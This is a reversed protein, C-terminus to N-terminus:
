LQVTKGPERANDVAIQGVEQVLKVAFDALSSRNHRDHDLFPQFTGFERVEWLKYLDHVSDIFANHLKSRRKSVDSLESNPAKIDARWQFDILSVSYMRAAMLMHGLLRRAIEDGETTKLLEQYM